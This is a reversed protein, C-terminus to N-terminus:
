DWGRTGAPSNQSGYWLRSREPSGACSLGAWLEQSPRELHPFDAGRRAHTVGQMLNVHVQLFLPHLEEVTQLGLDPEKDLGINTALLLRPHDTKVAYSQDSPDKLGASYSGTVFLIGCTEAVAALKQNIEKARESGGTMANIYFPVEWDRGAFHTTLDIEALDVLPLSRHILEIEDFSNYSYSQELAYHIHQDKRNESM